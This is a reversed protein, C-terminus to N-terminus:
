IYDSSSMLVPYFIAAISVHVSKIVLLVCRLPVLCITSVFDYYRCRLMYTVAHALMFFFVETKNGLLEETDSHAILDLLIYWIRNSLHPALLPALSFLSSLFFRSSRGLKNGSSATSATYSALMNASYCYAFYYLVTFFTGWLFSDCENGHFVQELSM